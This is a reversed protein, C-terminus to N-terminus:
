LFLSRGFLNQLSAKQMARPNINWVKKMRRDIRHRLCLHIDIQIICQVSCLMALQKCTPIRIFTKTPDVRRATRRCWCTTSWRTREFIKPSSLAHGRDIRRYSYNVCVFIRSYLSSLARIWWRKRWVTDRQRIEPRDHYCWSLRIEYIGRM